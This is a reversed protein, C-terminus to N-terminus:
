SKNLADVHELLKKFCRSKSSKAVDANNFGMIEAIDVMSKREIYFYRIIKACTDSLKQLAGYAMHTLEMKYDEENDFLIDAKLYEQYYIAADPVLMSKSKQKYSTLWKNYCIGFIYSKPNSLEKLKGELIKDRLDLLADIFLDEAEEDSCQTRNKLGKVCYGQYLTVLQELCSVDGHEIRRIIEKGDLEKM